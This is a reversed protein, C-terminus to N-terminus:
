NRVYKVFFLKFLIIHCKDVDHYIIGEYTVVNNEVNIVIVRQNGLIFWIDGPRPDPVKYYDFIVILILIFILIWCVFISTSM